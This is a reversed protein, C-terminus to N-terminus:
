PLLRAPPPQTAPPQTAVDDSKCHQFTFGGCAIIVVIFILVLVLCVIMIMLRVNRWWMAKRLKTSNDLFGESQDLLGETQNVLTDIKEGRELLTDINQLMVGKVNEIENQLTKVKDCSPGNYFELETRLQTQLQSTAGAGRCRVFHQKLKDLMQFALTQKYNEDSICLYVVGASVSVHFIMKDAAYSVRRDTSGPGAGGKQESLKQLIKHAQAAFTGARVSHEVTTRQDIKICAYHISM